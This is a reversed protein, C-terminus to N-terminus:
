YISKQIINEPYLMPPSTSSSTSTSLPFTDTIPSNLLPSTACAVPSTIKTPSSTETPSSSTASLPSTPLETKANANEDLSIKQENENENPKKKAEEKKWKMRRNQFWIKIHRETLNLLAALEIRRPRSIYKNYHFEKELELLQGRTYATRTRKNEDFDTFSAGQWNAKWMHAHSKTQKMWPYAQYRENQSTQQQLKMMLTATDTQMQSTQNQMQCSAAYQSLLNDELQQDVVAMSSGGGSGGGSGSYGGNPLTQRNAYICAPPSGGYGVSQNQCTPQTPLYHEKNTSTYLSNYYQNNGDM